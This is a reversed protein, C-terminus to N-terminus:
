EAKSKLERRLESIERLLDTVERELTTITQRMKDVEDERHLRGMAVRHAACCFRQGKKMTFVVNCYDCARKSEKVNKQIELLQARTLENLSYKYPM